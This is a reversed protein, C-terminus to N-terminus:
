ARRCCNKFKRGSGCPCPDNRGPAPHPSAARRRATQSIPPEQGRNIYEAIRRLESLARRFFAKYGQCFYNVREPAGYLPMHHKPCGGRCLDLFECNGCVSPLHTKLRAFDEIKPHRLLDALPADTLNGIKWRSSVFHDCVYLDGNFELVYANACRDSHSCMTSHSRALTHLVSDIFRESVSAVDRATWQDFVDIMFRGFQEPRCSFDAPSGESTRELIPIFQLHRIGRNVFYRYVDGAHMANAANLTVLVNFEVGHKKLRELGAWARHFTPRGAHDRRYRNHWQPPGDISIGILFQNEAFLECWQDDLLTGNTQLANAVNQGDRALSRQLEVAKSFFEKGALLPEGGQWHFDCRGPVATTYQRIFSELVAESMQFEKVGPYLERPKATYYCYLCDLNCRGCVPKAMINFPAAQRAM